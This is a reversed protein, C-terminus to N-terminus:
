GGVGFTRRRQTYVINRATHGAVPTFAQEPHPVDQPIHGKANPNPVCGSAIRESWVGLTFDPSVGGNKYKNMFTTLRTGWSTMASTTFIGGNQDGENLGPVYIRGRKRRGILGTQLTTVFACQPPLPDGAGSGGATTGAFLGAYQRGGERRCQNSVVTMNNGWLQDFKWNYYSLTPVQAPRMLEKVDEALTALAAESPDTATKLRFALTNMFYHNAMTTIGSWRYIDDVAM